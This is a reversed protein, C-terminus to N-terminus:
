PIVGTQEYLFQLNQNVSPNFIDFEPAASGDHCGMIGACSTPDPTLGEALANNAEIPSVTFLTHDLGSGPQPSLELPPMHCGICRSAGSGAPDVSHFFGTHIDVAEETDLGLFSSGHCQQCISNNIPDATVMSAEHMTHCEACTLVNKQAHGSALFQDTATEHCYGCLAAYGPIDLRTDNETSFVMAGEKHIDHCDNCSAANETAHTTGKWGDVYSEHCRACLEATETFPKDNFGEILVGNRGGARVHALGPGHCDECDIFSHPSKLFEHKDPGSRGDHCALCTTTGVRGPELPGGGTPCGTISGAALMVLLGNGALNRLRAVFGTM